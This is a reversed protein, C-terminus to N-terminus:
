KMRWAPLTICEIRDAYGPWDDADKCRKYLELLGRIERRGADISDDDLMTASAAYPWATEVAAFVFGLVPIGSAAEFGDSYFAAQMHYSKRAVQRAFEHISADACTKVDVIIVGRAKKRGVKTYWDPRCRCRIGTAADVWYASTEAEGNEFLPSLEPLSRLSLAQARAAEEQDPQICVRGLGHRETDCFAKWLKTARNLTVSSSVYRKDFQDPELTACHTLNGELQGAKSDLPPRLPNIHLAHFHLPSRALDLLGSNSLSETDSHYQEIPLGHVLGLRACPSSGLM